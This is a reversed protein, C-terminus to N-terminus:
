GHEDFRLVESERREIVVEGAVCEPPVAEIAADAVAAHGRDVRRGALVGPRDERELHQVGIVVAVRDGDLAEALLRLEPRLDAVRVQDRDVVVTPQAPAVEEGHLKDLPLRQRLHQRM